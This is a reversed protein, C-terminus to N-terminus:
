SAPQLTTSMAAALRSAPIWGPDPPPPTSARNEPGGGGNGDFYNRVDAQGSEQPTDDQDKPREFPLFIIRARQAAKARQHGEKLRYKAEKPSGGHSVMGTRTTPIGLKQQYQFLKTSAVDMDEMGGNGPIAIMVHLGLPEFYTENWRKTFPEFAGNTHAAIFNNKETKKAWKHSMIGAPIVGLHPAIFVGLVGYGISIGAFNVLQKGHMTAYSKLEMTFVRWERKSVGQAQLLPPLKFGSTITGMRSPIQLGRKLGPKRRPVISTETAPTIISEPTDYIFSVHRKQKTPGSKQLSSRNPYFYSRLSVSSTSARSAGPRVPDYHNNHRQYRPPDEGFRLGPPATDHDQASHANALSKRPEIPAM